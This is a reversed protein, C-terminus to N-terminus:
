SGLRQGSGEFLRPPAHTRPQSPRNGGGYGPSGGYTQPTAGYGGGYGGEEDDFLSSSFANFCYYSLMGALAMVAPSLIMNWSQVNYRTGMKDDFFPHTHVTTTITMKGDGSSNRVTSAERRGNLVSLLSIFELLAQFCCMFGFLFLCYQSMNRCDDKVVYFCVAAMIFMFFTGFVNGGVTQSVGLAIFLVMMAWWYKAYHVKVEEPAPEEHHGGMDGLPIVM